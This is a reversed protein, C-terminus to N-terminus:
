EFWRRDAPMAPQDAGGDPFPSDAPGRDVEAFWADLDDALPELVIGRGERRVVVRDGTLRFERPLRVAQSRGHMFVRAVARESM